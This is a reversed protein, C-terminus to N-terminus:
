GVTVEKEVTISETTNKPCITYRCLVTVTGPVGKYAQVSEIKYWYIIYGKLGSLYREIKQQILMKKYETYLQGLFETFDLERDIINLIRNVTVIKYPTHADAMNLLNEVTTPRLEHNKFYAWSKKMDWEDISFVAPGFNSTPYKSADTTCLAAALYLNAHETNKLNNACFILNRRNADPRCNWLFLKEQYDMDEIFADIDEYLSAHKDTVVYITKSRIRANNLLYAYFNTRESGNTIDVFTDSFRFGIPVVYAFDNQDFMEQANLLDSHKLTNMLFINKVGLSQATKFAKVLDSDEGYLDAAEVPDEMYVPSGVEYRTNAKAAIVMNSHKDVYVERMSVPM